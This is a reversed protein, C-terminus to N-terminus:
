FRSSSCFAENLTSIISSILSNHGVSGPVRLATERTATPTFYSFLYNHENRMLTVENPETTTFNGLLCRYVARFFFIFFLFVFFIFYLPYFLVLGPYASVLLYLIRLYM